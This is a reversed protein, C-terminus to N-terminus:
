QEGYQTSSQTSSYPGINYTGTGHPLTYSLPRETSLHKLYDSRFKDVEEQLDRIQRQQILHLALVLVFAVGLLLEM